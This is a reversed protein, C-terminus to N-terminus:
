WETGPLDQEMEKREEWENVSVRERSGRPDGLLYRGAEPRSARLECGVGPAHRRLGRARRCFRVGLEGAKARLRSSGADAQADKGLEKGSDSGLSRGIEGCGLTECTLSSIPPRLDASQRPHRRM